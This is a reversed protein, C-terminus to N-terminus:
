MLPTARCASAILVALCLYMLAWKLRMGFYQPRIFADSHGMGRSQAYQTNNRRKSRARLALVM